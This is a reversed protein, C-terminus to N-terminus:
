SQQTTSCNWVCMLDPPWSHLKNSKKKRKKIILYHLPFASGYNCTTTSLVAEANITPFPVKEKQESDVPTPVAANEMGCSETRKARQWSSSLSPKLKTNKRLAPNLVIVAKALYKRLHPMYSHTCTHMHIHKQKPENPNPVDIDDLGDQQLLQLTLPISPESM